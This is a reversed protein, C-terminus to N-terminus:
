LSRNKSFYDMLVDNYHLNPDKTPQPASFESYSTPSNLINEFDKPM